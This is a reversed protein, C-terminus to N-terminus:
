LELQLNGIEERGGRSYCVDRTEPYKDPYCDLLSGLREWVGSDAPVCPFHAAAFLLHSCWMNVAHFLTLVVHQCRGFVEVKEFDDHAQSFALSLFSQLGKESDSLELYESDPLPPFSLSVEGM